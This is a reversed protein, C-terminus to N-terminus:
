GDCLGVDDLGADVTSNPLTMGSMKLISLFLLALVITYRDPKRRNSQTHKLQQIKIIQLAM